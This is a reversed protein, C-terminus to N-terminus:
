LTKPATTFRVIKDVFLVGNLHDLEHQFVIADLGKLKKKQKCGSRDFYSVRVSRHRRVIGWVDPLSLCGEESDTKRFSSRRIEPNIFVELNNDLCGIFLRMNEGIQPGALGIGDALKMTEIMDDILSQIQPEQIEEVDIEDASRRLIENPETLIALQSM